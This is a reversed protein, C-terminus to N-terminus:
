RPSLNVVPPEESEGSTTELEQRATEPLVRAAIAMGVLPGVVLVAIANGLGLPGSLASVTLLGTAGGAVAFVLLMANASSRVRTPFLEPGYPSIAAIGAAGSVFGVFAAPWLWPGSVLFFTAYGLSAVTLAPIGVRRRGILDAARGGAVLAGAAPLATVALFLVLEVSGFGRHDQLYRTLLELAPAFFLAGLFLPVGLMLLRSRYPRRLVEQYRHPESVHDLYRRSERLRRGVVIALPIAAFNLAYVAAFGARGAAALPLVVVAVASGAGNALALMALTIARNGAPVLEAALVVIAIGLSVDIARLAIHGAIYVAFTPALGLVGALAGHAVTAGIVFRRRGGRDALWTILLAGILGSRVVALGTALAQDNVDFVKAAYPLSQSLLGGDGGGYSTVLSLLALGALAAESGPEM